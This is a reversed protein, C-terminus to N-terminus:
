KMGGAGTLLSGGAQMLGGYWAQRGGMKVMKREAQLEAVRAQGAQRILLADIEGQAATEEMVLLPSGEMTVGSKGYMVQQTGMLKKLKERHRAEEIKAREREAEEETKIIEANYDAMEKTKYAAYTKAAASIVMGAVMAWGM